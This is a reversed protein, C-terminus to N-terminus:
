RRQAELAERIIQARWWAPFAGALASRGSAYTSQEGGQLLEAPVGLAQQIVDNAEECLRNFAERQYAAIDAEVKDCPSEAFSEGVSTPLPGLDDIEKPTLPM